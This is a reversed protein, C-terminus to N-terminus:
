GASATQHAVCLAVFLFPDLASARSRSARRKQGTLCGQLVCCHPSVRSRRQHRNCIFRRIVAEAVMLVKSRPCLAVKAPGVAGPHTRGASGGLAPHPPGPRPGVRRALRWAPRISPSPSSHPPPIHAFIHATTPRASGPRATRGADAPWTIRPADRAPGPACTESPVGEAHRAQQRAGGKPLILLEPRVSQMIPELLALRTLWKHQSMTLM